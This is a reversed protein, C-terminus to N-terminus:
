RGYSLQLRPLDIFFSCTDPAVNLSSLFAGAPYFCHGVCNKCTAHVEFVLSSYDVCCPISLFSLVRSPYQCQLYSLTLSIICVFNVTFIDANTLHSMQGPSLTVYTLHSDTGKACLGNMELQLGLYLTILYLRPSGESLYVINLLMKLKENTFVTDTQQYINLFNTNEHLTKHYM